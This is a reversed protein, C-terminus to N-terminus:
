TPNSGLLNPEFFALRFIRLLARPPARDITRDPLALYGKARRSGAGGARETAPPAPLELHM